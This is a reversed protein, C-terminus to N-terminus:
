DADRAGAQLAERLEPVGAHEDDLDAKWMTKRCEECKIWLGKRGCRTTPTPSIEHADRKFWTMAPSESRGRVVTGPVEAM